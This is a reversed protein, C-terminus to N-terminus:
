ELLNMRVRRRTMQYAILGIMHDQNMIQMQHRSIFKVMTRLITLTVSSKLIASQTQGLKQLSEKDKFCGKGIGYARWTKVGTSTFEINSIFSVGKWSHKTVEQKTVDVDVVAIRTGKVGAGSDIAEKM